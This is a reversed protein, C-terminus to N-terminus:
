IKYKYVYLKHDTYNVQYEMEGERYILMHYNKDIFNGVINLYKLLSEKDLLTGKSNVVMEAPSVKLDISELQCNFAYSTEVLQSICDDINTNENKSQSQAKIDMHSFYDISLLTFATKHMYLLTDITKIVCMLDDRSVIKSIRDTSGYQIEIVDGKIVYDNHDAINRWQSASVDLLLGKYLGCFVDNYAMLADLAVGLKAQLSPKNQIIRCMENLFFVYPKLSNEIWEGIMQFAAKVLLDFREIEQIPTQLLAFQTYSAFGKSINAYGNKMGLSTRTSDALFANRCVEIIVNIGDEFLTGKMFDRYQVYDYHFLGCDIVQRLCDKDVVYKEFEDFVDQKSFPKSNNFENNLNNIYDSNSFM